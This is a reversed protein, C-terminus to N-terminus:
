LALEWVLAIDQAVAAADILVYSRALSPVLHPGAAAPVSAVAELPGSDVVRRSFVLSVTGLAAPNQEAYCCVRKAFPPINHHLYQPPPGGPLTMPLAEFTTRTAPETIGGALECLEASVWASAAGGLADEAWARVAIGSRCPVAVMRGSGGFGLPIDVEARLTAQDMRSIIEALFTAHTGSATPREGYLAVGVMPAPSSLLEYPSPVDLVVPASAPIGSHFVGSTTVLARGGYRQIRHGTMESPLAVAGEALLPDLRSLSRQRM